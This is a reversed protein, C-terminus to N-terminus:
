PASTRLRLERCSSEYTEELDVPLCPGGRLWLPLTPLRGGVSLRSWWVQLTAQGNGGAPHYAAAQLSVGQPEPPAERGLASLLSGHLDAWRNTVVDVLVLGVGQQLYTKCKGVFADRSEARDKNGPSVLEIAGVLTPGTESEFVAVEVLDDLTPLTMTLVPAPPSWPLVLGGKGSGVGEGPGRKEEWAAVDIEIGFQVNPEAFYGEPLRRNLDGSLMTAWANHFAQWHRRASLPPRFHDELPM